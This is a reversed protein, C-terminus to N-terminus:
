GSVRRRAAALRRNCADVTMLADSKRLKDNGKPTWTGKLVEMELIQSAEPKTLGPVYLGLERLRYQQAPTAPMKHQIKSVQQSLHAAEGYTLDKDISFGNRKLYDLQGGAAPEMQWDNDASYDDLTPMEEDDFPCVGKLVWLVPCIREKRKEEDVVTLVDRGQANVPVETSIGLLSTITVLKHRHCNDTVDLILCDKKGDHLRLGRGVMQTYLTHSKTPRAMLVCDAGPSDWGETCVMCNVLVRIRGQDFDRLIGRRLDLPTEGTV